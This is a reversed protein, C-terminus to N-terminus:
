TRALLRVQDGVKAPDHALDAVGRPCDAGRGPTSGPGAAEFAAARGGRERPTADIRSRGTGASETSEGPTSGPGRGESPRTGDTVSWSCNAGCHHAATASPLNASGRGFPCSSRLGARRSNRWEALPTESDGTRSDFGGSWRSPSADQASLGVPSADPRPCYCPHSDFGCVRWPKLRAAKGTQTGHRDPGRPRASEVPTSGADERDVAPRGEWPTWSLMSCGPESGIWSNRPSSDFWRGGRESRPTVVLLLQGPISFSGALEPLLVRVEM